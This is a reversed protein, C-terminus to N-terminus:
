NLGINIEVNSQELGDSNTSFIDLRGQKGNTSFNLSGSYLGDVVKIAGQAIVGRVDDILRFYVEGYSSKGSVLSGNALTSGTTPSFVTIAKDKSTLWKAEPPVIPVDGNNDQLTGENKPNSVPVRGGGDKFNEQATPEKSTTKPKTSPINPKTYLNTAGTVEMIVIAGGVISILLAILLIQKTKIKQM